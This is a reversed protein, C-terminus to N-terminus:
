YEYATITGHGEHVTTVSASPLSQVDRRISEKFKAAVLILVIVRVCTKIPKEAVWLSINVVGSDQYAIILQPKIWNLYSSCHLWGLQRKRGEGSVWLIFSSKLALDTELALPLKLVSRLSDSNM